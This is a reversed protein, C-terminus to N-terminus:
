RANEQPDYHVDNAAYIRAQYDSDTELWRRPSTDRVVATAQRTYDTAHGTVPVPLLPVYGQPVAKVFEWIDGSVVSPKESTKEPIKKPELSPHWSEVPMVEGAASHGAISPHWSEVPMVEGAADIAAKLVVPAGKVTRSAVYKGLEYIAFAGALIAAGEAVRIYWQSAM